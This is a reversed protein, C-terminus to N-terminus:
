EVQLVSNRGGFGDSVAAPNEPDAIWHDGDIALKYEFRGPGLRVEARWRGNGLAAMPTAAPSWGNFSGVVAVTRAAPNVYTIPVLRVETRARNEPTAPRAPQGSIYAYGDMLHELENSVSHLPGQDVDAFQLRFRARRGAGGAVKVLVYNTGIAFGADAQTQRRFGELRAVEEGAIRVLAPSDCELRVTAERTSTTLATLAYWVGAPGSADALTIWGDEELRTSPLHQWHAPGAPAPYGEGLDIAGDPGQRANIAAAMGTWDNPGAAPSEFPGIWLWRFHVPVQTELTSILRTADHFRWQVAVLGPALLPPPALQLTWTRQEGPGLTFDAESAPSVVWETPAMLEFRGAQENEVQNAIEVECVTRPPSAEEAVIRVSARLAEVVSTGPAYAPRGHPGRLVLWWFGTRDPLPPLQGRLELTDQLVVAVPSAAMLTTGNTWTASWSGQAANVADAGSRYRVHLLPSAGRATVHPLVEAAYAADVTPRLLLQIADEALRDLADGMWQALDEDRWGFAAAKADGNPSRTTMRGAAFRNRREVPNFSRWQEARAVLVHALSDAGTGAGPDPRQMLALTEDRELPQLVLARSLLEVISRTRLLPQWRGPRAPATVATVTAGASTTAGGGLGKSSVGGTAAWLRLPVRDRNPLGHARLAQDTLEVLEPDYLAAIATRLLAATQEATFLSLEPHRPWDAKPDLRRIARGTRQAQSVSVDNGVLLSEATATARAHVTPAELALPLLCGLSLPEDILRGATDLAAYGGTQPDYLQAMMHRHVLARERWWVLADFFYERRAAMEALAEAYVLQLGPLVAATRCGKLGAARLVRADERWLGGNQPDLHRGLWFHWRALARYTNEDPPLGAREAETVAAALLPLQATNFSRAMTDLDGAAGQASTVFFPRLASLDQAPAAVAAGSFLALALPIAPFLRIARAM